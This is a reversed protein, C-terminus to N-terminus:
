DNKGIRFIVSNINFIYRHITVVEKNQNNTHVVVDQSVVVKFRHLTPGLSMLDYQDPTANM